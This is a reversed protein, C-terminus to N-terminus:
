HRTAQLFEPDKIFSFPKELPESAESFLEKTSRRKAPWFALNERSVETWHSSPNEWTTKEMEELRTSIEKLPQSFWDLSFCTSKTIESGWFLPCDLLRAFFMDFIKASSYNALEYVSLYATFTNASVMVFKLLLRPQRRQTWYLVANNITQHEQSTTVKQFREAM